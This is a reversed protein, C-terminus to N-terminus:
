RNIIFKNTIVGKNTHLKIFYIGPQFDTVSIRILDNSNNLVSKYVSKGIVDSIELNKVFLGTETTKIYIIDNSPNPFIRIFQNNFIMEDIGIIISSAYLFGFSTNYNGGTVSYSVFTEGVVGFNSYNSGVSEGGGSSLVEALNSYNQAQINLLLCLLSIVLIFLKINKM